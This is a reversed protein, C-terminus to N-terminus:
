VPYRSRLARRVVVLAVINAFICIWLFNPVSLAICSHILYAIQAFLGALLGVGNWGFLTRPFYEDSQGLLHEVILTWFFEM